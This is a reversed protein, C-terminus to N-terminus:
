FTSTVFTKSSTMTLLKSRLNSFSHKTVPWVFCQEVKLIDDDDDNQPELAEELGQGLVKM